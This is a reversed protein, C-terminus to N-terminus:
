TIFNGVEELAKNLLESSDELSSCWEDSLESSQRLHLSLVFPFLM